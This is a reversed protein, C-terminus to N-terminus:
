YKKINKAWDLRRYVATTVLPKRSQVKFNKMMNWETFSCTPDSKVNKAWDLRQYVATTVIPKASGVKFNKLMHWWLLLFRNMHEM